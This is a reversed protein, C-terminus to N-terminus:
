KAPGHRYYRDFVPDTPCYALDSSLNKVRFHLLLAEGPLTRIDRATKTQITYRIKSQEIGVPSFELDGVRLPNPSGLKVKLRDPLELEPKPGRLNITSSSDKKKPLDIRGQDPM